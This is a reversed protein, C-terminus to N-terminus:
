FQLINYCYKGHQQTQPPMSPPMLNPCTGYQPSDTSLSTSEHSETRFRQDGRCQDEDEKIEKYDLLITFTKILAQNIQCETLYVWQKLITVKVRCHQFTWSM